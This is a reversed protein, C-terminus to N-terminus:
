AILSTGINQMSLIMLQFLSFDHFLCIESTGGQLIESKWKSPLLLCHYVISLLHSYAMTHATKRHLLDFMSKLSSYDVSVQVSLFCM